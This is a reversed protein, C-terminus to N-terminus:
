LIRITQNRRIEGLTTLPSAQNFEQPALGYVHLDYPFGVSARYLLKSREDPDMSAFDDSLVLLDVDNVNRCGQVLSGYLLVSDIRIYKAVNSIYNKIAPKVTRIDM